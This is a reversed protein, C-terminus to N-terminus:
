DIDYTVKVQVQWYSAGPGPGAFIPMPPQVSVSRVDGLSVGAADASTHAMAQAQETAQQIAPELISADTPPAQPGGKGYTSVSTAGAGIAAQMAAALQHPSDVDVQINANVIYGQGADSPTATAPTDAPFPVPPYPPYGYAPSINFNTVVIADPPIGAGQLAAEIADIKAQAADVAAQVDPGNTQETVGVSLSHGADVVVAAVQGIGVASVTSPEDAPLPTQADAVPTSDGGVFQVAAWALVATAALGPVAYRVMSRQM